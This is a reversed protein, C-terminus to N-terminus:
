TILVIQTDEEKMQIQAFLLTNQQIQRMNTVNKRGLQNAFHNGGELTSFIEKGRRYHWETVKGYCRQDSRGIECFCFLCCSDILKGDCSCEQGQVNFCPEASNCFIKALPDHAFFAM